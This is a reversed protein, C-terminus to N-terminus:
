RVLGLKPDLPQAAVSYDIAKKVNTVAEKRSEIKRRAKRSTRIADDEIQRKAEIAELLDACAKADTGGARLISKAERLERLSCSPLGRVSTPVDIFAGDIELWVISVNDQRFYVRYKNKSNILPVLAPDWYRLGNIEIGQRGVVRNKYPLFGLVFERRDSVIRPLAVQGDETLWAQSWAKSPTVDGLGKHPTNFYRWCIENAVWKQLERMNMCALKQSKYARRQKSNSFTTGPLLHVQGMFTGIYREIFAGYHPKRVPRSNVSIGRRECQTRIGTAQFTKGRDWHFSQPVGFVPYSSKVGIEELWEEKPFCAHEICLDVATQNPDDLSLYWGVISRTLVDIALTIWPRGIEKRTSTEVVMVDVVAHDVQVVELPAEVTIGYVAAKQLADGEENGFRKRQRELPNKHSIRNALTRHDPASLGARQCIVRVYQHFSNLSPREPRLYFALYAEDIIREIEPGLYRTGPTPGPISNIQSAPSPNQRFASYRRAVTRVSVGMEVAISAKQAPTAGGRAPLLALHKSWALAIKDQEEDAAPIRKKQSREGAFPRLDGARTWLCENTGCVVARICSSSKIEAVRVARGDCVLVEGVRIQIPPPSRSVGRAPPM